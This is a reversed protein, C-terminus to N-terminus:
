YKSTPTNLKLRLDGLIIVREDETEPLRIFIITLKLLRLLFYCKVQKMVSFCQSSCLVSSEDNEKQNQLFKTPSFSSLKGSIPPLSKRTRVRHVRTM